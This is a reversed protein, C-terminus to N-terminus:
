TRSPASRSSIRHTANGPAPVSNSAVQHEQWDGYHTYIEFETTGGSFRLVALQVLVAEAHPNTWTFYEYYDSGNESSALENFNSDYLFVDYDYTDGDRNWLLHFTVQEGAAIIINLTKDGTRFDHWDDDGAVFGHQYHCEAYNGASNLVLIGASAASNLAGAALGANDHWGGTPDSLSVSLVDVGSAVANAAASVWDSATDVKYLRYTAAPCHDFVAETCGTGHITTGQFPEATYNIATYSAPADGNAIAADLNQFGSDMIAVTIGAGDPYGASNLVGPGEGPTDQPLMRNANEIFHGPPLARACDVLRALPLWADVSNLQRNEVRGDFSAVFDPSVGDAGPPGVIEVHVERDASLTIRRQAFEARLTATDLQRAAANQVAAHLPAHLRLDKPHSPARPAPLQQGPAPTTLWGVLLLTIVTRIM